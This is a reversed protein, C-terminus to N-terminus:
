KNVSLAFFKSRADAALMKTQLQTARRLTYACIKRFKHSLFCNQDVQGRFSTCATSAFSIIWCPVDDGKKGEGKCREEKREGRKEGEGERVSIEPSM